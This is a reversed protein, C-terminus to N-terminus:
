MSYHVEPDFEIDQFEGNKRVLLSSTKDSQEEVTFEPLAGGTFESIMSAMRRSDPPLASEMKPTLLLYENSPRKIATYSIDFQVLGAQYFARAAIEAFQLPHIQRQDLLSRLRDEYWHEIYGFDDFVVIFGISDLRMALAVPWEISDRFNFNLAPPGGSKLHFRLISCPWRPADLVIRNRFGQLLQITLQLHDFVAPTLKSPLWKKAQADWPKVQFHLLGYLIKAAWLLLDSRSLQEFDAFTKVASSIRNEVRSMYDNNCSRCCPVVIGPYNKTAGNLLNIEEAALALRQWLWKPFVDEKTAFDASKANGLTLRRHCIFCDVDIYQLMETNTPLPSLPSGLVIPPTLESLLYLGQESM